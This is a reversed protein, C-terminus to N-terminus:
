RGIDTNSKTLEKTKMAKIVINHLSSWWFRLSPSILCLSLLSRPSFYAHCLNLLNDISQFKKIKITKQNVLVIVDKEWIGSTHLFIEQIRTGKPWPFLQQVIRLHLRQIWRTIQNISSNILFFLFYFTM